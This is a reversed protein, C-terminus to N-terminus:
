LKPLMLGHDDHMLTQAVVLSNLKRHLPYNNSPNAFALYMVLLFLFNFYFTELIEKLVVVDFHILNETNETDISRM